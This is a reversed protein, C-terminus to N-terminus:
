VARELEIKKLESRAAPLYDACRTIEDKLANMAAEASDLADTKALQELESLRLRLNDAEVIGATGKMAHLVRAAQKGNGNELHTQVEAISSRVQKEFKDLISMALTSNGTCRELFASINM